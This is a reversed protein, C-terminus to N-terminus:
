ERGRRGKVLEERGEIKELKGKEWRRKRRRGKWRRGGEKKKGEGEKKEEVKGRGMRGDEGGDVGDVKEEGDVENREM